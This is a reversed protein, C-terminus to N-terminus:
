GWGTGSWTTPIMTVAAPPMMAALVLGFVLSRGPFRFYAFGFAVFASSLTVPLAAMVRQCRRRYGARSSAAPESPGCGTWCGNWLLALDPRDGTQTPRHVMVLGGDAMDGVLVWTV